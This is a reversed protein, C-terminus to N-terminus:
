GFKMGSYPEAKKRFRILLAFLLITSVFVAAVGIVIAAIQVNEDAANLGANSVTAADYLTHWLVPLFLGLFVYKGTGGNKEQKHYRALGLYTGMIMGLVMHMAFAPLRILSILGEGGYLAEETATFGFGIGIFILIHEYVNKPRFIKVLLLAPLLKVLEETFGAVLFSKVLSRFVPDTVAENIPKGSIKEVSLCFIIAVVTSLVPLILGLVVPIAAQKKGIPEPVERKIMRVYVFACLAFAILSTISM